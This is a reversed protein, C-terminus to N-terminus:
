CQKAEKKIKRDKLISILLKFAIKIMFYLMVIKFIFFLADQLFIFFMYPKKFGEKGTSFKSDENFDARSYLEESYDKLFSNSAISNITDATEASVFSELVKRNNIIGDNNITNLQLVNFVLYILGITILIIHKM